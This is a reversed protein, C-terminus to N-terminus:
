TVRVKREARIVLIQTLTGLVAIEVASRLVASGEFHGAAAGRIADCVASLPNWEVTTRLWEPILQLPVFATSLLLFPLFLPTVAQAAEASGSRLCLAFALGGYAMGLGAALPITVALALPWNAIHAGSGWAVFTLILVFLAIRTGDGLRRGFQSQSPGLPSLEMRDYFGLQREVAVGIGASATGLMASMVMPGALVYQAYNVDGDFGPTGPIRTGLTEFVESFLVSYVVLVFAPVVLPAVLTQPGLAVLERISRRYLVWTARLRVAIM